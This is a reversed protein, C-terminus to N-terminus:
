RDSAEKGAWTAIGYMLLTLLFFMVTAATRGESAAGFASVANFGTMAYACTSLVHYRNM